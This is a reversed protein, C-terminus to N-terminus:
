TIKGQAALLSICKEFVSLNIFRDEVTECVIFGGSAQIAGDIMLNDILDFDEIEMGDPDVEKDSNFYAKVRPNFPTAVNSYGYCKKGLAKAFGIEYATGVDASPSRFPSLNAVVIDCNKILKENAESIMLGMERPTKHVVNIENDFPFCGIFGYKECIQKKLKGVAIANPLLVEPGALYIKQKM